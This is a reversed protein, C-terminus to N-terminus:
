QPREIQHWQKARAERVAQKVAGFEPISLSRLLAHINTTSMDQRLVQRCARAVTEESLGHFIADLNGAFQPATGQFVARSTVPPLVRVDCFGCSELMAM